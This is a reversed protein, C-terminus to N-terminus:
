GSLGNRITSTLQFHVSLSLYTCHDHLEAELFDQLLVLKKGNSHARINSNIVFGCSTGTKAALIRRSPTNLIKLQCHSSQHKQPSNLTKHTIILSLKLQYTIILFHFPNTTPRNFIVFCVFKVRSEFNFM